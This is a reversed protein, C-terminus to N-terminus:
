LENFKDSNCSFALTDPYMDKGHLARVRVELAALHRSHTVQGNGSLFDDSSGSCSFSPAAPSDSQPAGALAAAAVAALRQQQQHHRTRTPVAHIAAAAAAVASSADAPPRETGDEDDLNYNFRTHTRM